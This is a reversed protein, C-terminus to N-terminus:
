WGGGRWRRFTLALGAFAAILAVVPLVWVLGAVGSRPPNLLVSPGYAAPDALETRIQDASKGAKVEAIIRNRITASIPADSTAVSQSKCVPCKVTAEIAAAREADTRSGHSGAGIVLAVVLVVAMASWSWRRRRHTASKPARGDATDQVAVSRAGDSQDPQRDPGTM